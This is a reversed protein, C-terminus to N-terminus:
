TWTASSTAPMKGGGKVRKLEMAKSSLRLKMEKVEQKLRDIEMKLFIVWVLM